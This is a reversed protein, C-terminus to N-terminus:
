LAWFHSETALIPSTGAFALSSFRSIAANIHTLQGQKEPTTRGNSKLASKVISLHAELNPLFRPAHLEARSLASSVLPLFEQLSTHNKGEPSDLIGALGVVTSRWTGKPGSRNSHFTEVIQGKRVKWHEWNTELEEAARCLLEIPGSPKVLAVVNYLGLSVWIARISEIAIPLLVGSIATHPRVPGFFLLEGDVTASDITPITSQGVSEVRWLPSVRTSAAWTALVDTISDALGVEFRPGHPDDLRRSAHLYTALSALRISEM